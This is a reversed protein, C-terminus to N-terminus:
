NWCDCNCHIIEAIAESVTPSASTPSVLSPPVLQSDPTDAYTQQPPNPPQCQPPPSVDISAYPYGIGGNEVIVSDIGGNTALVPTLVAGHGVPYVIFEPPNAESYGSSPNTVTVSIITGDVVEAVVSACCIDIESPVDNQLDGGALALRTANRSERMMAIMSQGGLNETDSIFEIIPAEQGATTQTAWEELNRVFTIFDSSGVLESTAIPFCLPIARQEIFLQNGILDWYHNLESCLQPNSTFINNIENNAALVFAQVEDNTTVPYTSYINALSPTILRQILGTVIKFYDSYPYGSAAGYFDCQRYTNNNGSGLAIRSLM